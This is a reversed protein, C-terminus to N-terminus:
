DDYYEDFAEDRMREIMYDIQENKVYELFGFYYYTFEEYIYDTDRPIDNTLRYEEDIMDEITTEFEKIVKNFIERHTGDFEYILNIIEQPLHYM